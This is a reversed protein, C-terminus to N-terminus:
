ERDNVDEEEEEEEVKEEEEEEEEGEGAGAGAGEEKEEEEEKYDEEKYDFASHDGPYLLFIPRHPLPKESLGFPHPNLPTSLPLLPRSFSPRLRACFSPGGVVSFLARLLLLM